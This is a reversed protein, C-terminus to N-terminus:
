KNMNVNKDRSYNQCRIRGVQNKTCAGFYANKSMELFNNRSNKSGCSYITSVGALDCNTIQGM